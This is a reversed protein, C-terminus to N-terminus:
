THGERIEVIWLASPNTRERLEVILCYPRSLHVSLTRNPHTALTVLRLTRMAALDAVDRAARLLQLRKRYLTVLPAPLGHTYARDIELRDYSSDYFYLEM